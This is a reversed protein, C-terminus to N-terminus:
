QQGTITILPAATDSTNDGDSGDGGGSGSGSGSCSTLITTLSILLALEILNQLRFCELFRAM